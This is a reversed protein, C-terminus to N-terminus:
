RRDDAGACRIVQKAVYVKAGGHRKGTAVIRHRRVLQRVGSATIGLFAALEAATLM